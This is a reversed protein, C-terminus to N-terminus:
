QVFSIIIYSYQLECHSSNVSFSRVLWFALMQGLVLAKSKGIIHNWITERMTVNQHQRDDASMTPSMDLDDDNESEHANDDGRETSFPLQQQQWSSSMPSLPLKRRRTSDSGPSHAADNAEPSGVM